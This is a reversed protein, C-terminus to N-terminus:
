RRVVDDDTRTEHGEKRDRGSNPLAVTFHAGAGISTELEITGGHAEIIAAAIALGLGTGGVARTRSEETRYFRDFIHEANMPDMGPGDDIVHIRTMSDSGIELRVTARTGPPTHMAVNALLNGLVQRLRAVDGEIFVPNAPMQVDIPRGPEAIRADSVSDDILQTLDIRSPDLPRRQDLRALLLLDDVLSAMRTAEAEIRGVARLRDAPDAAAGSRLLEAYGRVHTLPTRLEHSADAAFRRLRQESSRRGEFAVELQHVMDNLALALQGGPSGTMPPEEVRATLDGAGIQRATDILHHVQRNSAAVVAWTLVALVAIAVAGIIILRGALVEVTTDIDDLPAAVIVTMGDGATATVARYRLDDATAAITFLRGDPQREARELDPLPSPAGVPGSASAHIVEGEADVILYASTTAASGVDALAAIEDVTLLGIADAVGRASTRLQDDLQGELETELTRVAVTGGIVFAAVLLILIVGVVRSTSALRDSAWRSATV